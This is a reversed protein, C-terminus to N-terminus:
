VTMIEKEKAALIEDIKKTYSDTLQQIKEEGGKVEDESIGNKLLKKLNENSEKRINRIHVKGAEVENKAQKVLDKRREETLSPLNIRIQDGDNQPNLNLNSNKIAKEIETLLNKEWPKITITRTDPTNISAVQNLPTSTGYYDVNIGDLMSPSAKGARVKVLENATHKLAKEMSEKANSLVSEISDM